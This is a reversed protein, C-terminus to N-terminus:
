RMGLFGGEHVCKEYVTQVNSIAVKARANKYDTHKDCYKEYITIDQLCQNFSEESHLVGHMIEDSFSLIRIRCDTAQQEEMREELATFRDDTDKKQTELKKKIDTVAELIEDKKDNKSDKRSILFQVFGLIGGGGLAGILATLIIKLAEM